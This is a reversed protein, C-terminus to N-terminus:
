AAALHLYAPDFDAVERMRAPDAIQLYKGAGSIVGEARLASLMRNVHVATLGTADAIHEQTMPLRLREQAGLGAAECRAAFECLMHAIRSRADRRGVNLVWERFVSAEIMTEHWLAASITPRAAILRRLVDQPVWAIMAETITEVNHDARAFLMHQLDLIDGPIHFSVIQRGGSRTTKHRCAYGSVLLCCRETPAGERVLLQGSAAAEVDFRLGRIADIDGKSLYGLREIRSLILQPIADDNGIM